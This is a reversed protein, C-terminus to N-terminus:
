LFRETDEASPLHCVNRRGFWKFRNKAIWRYLTDRLRKPILRSVLVVKYIGGLTMGLEYVADSYYYVNTGRVVVVSDITEPIQKLIEKGQEGQLSSFVFQKKKDAKLLFQVLGSCLVCMGDYLVWTKGEPAIVTM